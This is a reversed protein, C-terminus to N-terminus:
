VLDTKKFDDGTFILKHGTDAALAYTMCDLINLRAPHRGKGYRLYADIALNAQSLDFPVIEAEVSDLIRHIMSRPDHGVRATLVMGCETIAPTGIRLIKSKSAQDEMESSSPEGLVMSIVASADLIM